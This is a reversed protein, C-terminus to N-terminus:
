HLDLTELFASLSAPMTKQQHFIGGYLVPANEIPISVLGSLNQIPAADSLLSIGMGSQIMMLVTEVYDFCGTIEPQFGNRNCLSLVYNYERSSDPHGHMVFSEKKLEPLSLISRGAFRHDSRMVASFHYEAFIEYSLGEPIEDMTFIVLAADLQEKKLKSILALKNDRTSSIQINPFQKSFEKAKDCIHLTASFNMFGISFSENTTGSERHGIERIDSYLDDESSYFPEIRRLLETGADTLILNRNTRIFLPTGLDQELDSIAKSLSSQSIYLVEAAHSINRIRAIEYFYKLKNYNM